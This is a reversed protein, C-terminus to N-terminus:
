APVKTGRLWPSVNEEPVRWNTGKRRHYGILEGDRLAKTVTETHVRAKAAVERVTLDM